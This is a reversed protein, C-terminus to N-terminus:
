SYRAFLNTSPREKLLRLTWFFSLAAVITSSLLYGFAIGEIGNQALSSGIVIVMIGGAIAIFAPIKARNLFMMMVASATFVSIGISGLSAYRMIQMSTETGNFFSVIPIGFNFLVAVSALSTIL